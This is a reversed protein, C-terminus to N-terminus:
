DLILTGFMSPVHFDPMPTRTPSRALFRRNPATGEM